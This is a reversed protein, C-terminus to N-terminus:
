LTAQLVPTHRALLKGLADALREYDEPRNYLHASVRVFHLGENVMFPAEIRFQDYLPQQLKMGDIGRPLLVAGMSGMMKTPAIPAASLREEILQRGWKALNHNHRRVEDWGLETLFSVAAPLALWATFDRTGQWNFEKQLGNGYDHSVVCPHILERRDKRVWIFGCGRPACVWKHLNGAYYAAGISEIDLPLMGPAHAGDVLVDVGRAACLKVIREVPFILATPSTAHDIVVLKTRDTVRSMVAEVVQEAGVVPLAVPAKIVRAGAMEAVNLMAKYVANYVHDTTLLEDDREFRLSRLVANVGETANTVLGFDEVKMGLLKAVPRKAEEVLGPMRRGLYEVPEAEIRKRWREQCASVRRPVAGFSGHNLFAVDPRLEWEARVDRVFGGPRSM